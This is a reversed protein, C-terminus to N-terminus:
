LIITYVFFYSGTVAFEIADRQRSQLIIKNKFGLELLYCQYM